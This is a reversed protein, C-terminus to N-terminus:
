VRPSRGLPPLRDFRVADRGLDVVDHRSLESEGTVWARLYAGAAAVVGLGLVRKCRGNDPSLQDALVDTTAV